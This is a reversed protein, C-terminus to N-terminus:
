VNVALLMLETQIDEKSVSYKKSADAICENLVTVRGVRNMRGHHRTHFEFRVYEKAADVAVMYDFQSM